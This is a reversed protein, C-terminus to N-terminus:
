YSFITVSEVHGVLVQIDLDRGIKGTEGSQIRNVKPAAAASAKHWM